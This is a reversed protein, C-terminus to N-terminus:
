GWVGGFIAVGNEVARATPGNDRPLFDRYAAYDRGDITVNSGSALNRQMLPIRQFYTGNDGGPKLGFRTLERVIYDTGKDHYVTGAQRGMMSDDAFIYLRTMLDAKTIAATTSKPDLKIPQNRQQGSVCMPLALAAVILSTRRM